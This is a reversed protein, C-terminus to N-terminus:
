RAMWGVLRTDNKSLGQTTIIRNTLANTMGSADAEM